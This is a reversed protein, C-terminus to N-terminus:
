VYMPETPAYTNYCSITGSTDGVFFCNNYRPHWLVGLIVVLIVIQKIKHYDLYKM